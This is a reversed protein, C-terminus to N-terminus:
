ISNHIESSPTAHKRSETTIQWTADSPTARVPNEQSTLRVSRPKQHHDQLVALRRGLGLGYRGWRTWCNQNFFWIVTTGGRGGEEGSDREPCSKRTGAYSFLFEFSLTKTGRLFNFFLRQLGRVANRKPSKLFINGATPFVTPVLADM